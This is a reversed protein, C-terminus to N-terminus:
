KILVTFFNKEAMLRTTRNREIAMALWKKNISSSLSIVLLVPCKSM